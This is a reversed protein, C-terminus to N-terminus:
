KDGAAEAEVKELEFYVGDYINFFFYRLYQKFPLLNRLKHLWTLRLGYLQAVRLKFRAPTYFDCADVGCFYDMSKETFFHKHTPDQLAWDTKGYPVHIRLLGGPRLLRHLEAMVRPIDDLHELVNDLLIEAASGSPFPYPPQNLDFHEDAKVAQSLDCNVHGPLYKRGCGLNLKLEGPSTSAAAGSSEPKPDPEM